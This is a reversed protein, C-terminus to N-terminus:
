IKVSLLAGIVIFGLKLTRSSLTRSRRRIVFQFETQPIGQVINVAASVKIKIRTLCIKSSGKVNYM